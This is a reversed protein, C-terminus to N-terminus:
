WIQTRGHYWHPNRPPRFDDSMEELGCAISRDSIGGGRTQHRWAVGATAKIIPCTYRRSAAFESSGEPPLGNVAGLIASVRASFSTIAVQVPLRVTGGPFSLARRRTSV